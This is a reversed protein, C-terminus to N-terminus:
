VVSVLRKKKRRRRRRGPEWMAGRGWKGKWGPRVGMRGGSSNQSGCRRKGESLRAVTIGPAM